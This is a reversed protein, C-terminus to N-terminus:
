TSRRWRWRRRCSRRRCTRRWWCAFFLPDINFHAMLPLFIPMFIVIIETWELPWGLLFIIVQALLMFQTPSLNMSHVWTDIIGPRGAARVGRRFHGVRRVALVGDRQDKRHPLGVGQAGEHQITRLRGYPVVSRVIGDGGARDASALGAIISGLVGAILFAWRFFGTMLLQSGRVPSTSSAYIVRVGRLAFVLPRDLVVVQRVRTPAAKDPAAAGPAAVSATEAPVFFRKPSPV